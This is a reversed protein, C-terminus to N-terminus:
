GSTFLNNLTHEGNGCQERQQANVIQKDREDSMVNIQTSTFIDETERKDGGGKKDRM